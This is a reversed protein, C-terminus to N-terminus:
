LRKTFVDHYKEYPIIINKNLAILFVPSEKSPIRSERTLKEFKRV